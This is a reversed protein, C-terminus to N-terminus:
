SLGTKFSFILNYTYDAWLSSQLDDWKIKAVVWSQWSLAWGQKNKISRFGLPKVLKNLTVLHCLWSRAAFAKSSKSCFTVKAHATGCKLNRRTTDQCREKRKSAKKKKKEMQCHQAVRPIKTGWGPILSTVGATSTCPDKVVLSGLLEWSAMVKQKMM